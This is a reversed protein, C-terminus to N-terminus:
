APQCKKCAGMDESYYEVQITLSHFDYLAKLRRTARKLVVNPDTVKDIALHASMVTQNLTLSWIRLDHVATVGDMELLKEKVVAYEIGVPSGEMIVIVTDRLITITTILVLVSFLFTCIPDAIKYEPKFYIVFAAILVGLSQLLDGVVHIFAARVNVNGTEGSSADTQTSANSGAEQDVDHSHSHNHSQGGHSHGHTHSHEHLVLGMVINFGVALSATILMNKGNVEYKNTVIRMIALYVLVGTVIWIALVSVLAGIVEARHWGFTMKQSIPRAAMKLALISIMFSSVDTLLHSADTMVALSNALYGGVVEGVMFFFSLATAVILKQMAKKRKKEDREQRDDDLDHCHDSEMSMSSRRSSDPMDQRDTSHRHNKDHGFGNKEAEEADRRSSNSNRNFLSSSSAADGNNRLLGVNEKSHSMGAEHVGKVNNPNYAALAQSCDIEVESTGGYANNSVGSLKLPMRADKSRKSNSLLKRKAPSTSSNSRRHRRAEGTDDTDCDADSALSRKKQRGTDNSSYYGRSRNEDSESFASSLPSDGVKQIGNHRLLSAKHQVQGNAQGGEDHQKALDDDNLLFSSEKSKRRGLKEEIFTQICEPKAFSM